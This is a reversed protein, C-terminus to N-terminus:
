LILKPNHDLKRPLNQKNHAHAANQLHILWDLFIAQKFLPWFQCCFLLEMQVIVIKPLWPQFMHKEWPILKTSQFTWNPWNFHWGPLSIDTLDSHASILAHDGISIDDTVSQRPLPHTSVDHLCLIAFTLLAFYIQLMKRSSLRIKTKKKRVRM